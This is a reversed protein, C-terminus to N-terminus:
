QWMKDTVTELDEIRGILELMVCILMMEVSNPTNFVIKGNYHERSYDFIKDLRKRDLPRLASRFTKFKKEIVDVSMRHTSTVHEMDFRTVPNITIKKM